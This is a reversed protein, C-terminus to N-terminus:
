AALRELLRQEMTRKFEDFTGWFVTYHGDFGEYEIGYQSAYPQKDYSFYSIKEDIHLSGSGDYYQHWYWGNSLREIKYGDFYDCEDPYDEVAIITLENMM